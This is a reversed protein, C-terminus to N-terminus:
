NSSVNEKWKREKEVHWQQQYNEGPEKKKDM